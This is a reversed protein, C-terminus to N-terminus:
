QLRGAQIVQAIAILVLALCLWMVASWLYLPDITRLARRVFWGGRLVDFQKDWTGRAIARIPNPFDAM